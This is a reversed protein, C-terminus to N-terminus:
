LNLIANADYLLLYYPTKKCTGVTKKKQDAIQYNKSIKAIM